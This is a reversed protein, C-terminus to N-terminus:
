SMKDWGPGCRNINKWQISPRTSIEWAKFAEMNREELIDRSGTIGKWLGRRHSTLIKEKMGVVVRLPVHTRAFGRSPSITGATGPKRSRRKGIDMYLHTALYGLHKKRYLSISFFTIMPEEQSSKIGSIPISSM